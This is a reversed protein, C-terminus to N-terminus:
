CIVSKYERQYSLYKRPNKALAKKNPSFSNIFNVMHNINSSKLRLPSFTPFVQVLKFAQFYKLTIYNLDFHRSSTNKPTTMFFSHQPFTEITPLFNGLSNIKPQSIGWARHLHVNFEWSVGWWNEMFQLNFLKFNGNKEAKGGKQEVM